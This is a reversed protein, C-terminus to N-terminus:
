KRPSTTVDKPVYNPNKRPLKANGAALRKMLIAELEKVKAPMDAALDKEEGLDVSNRRGRGSNRWM